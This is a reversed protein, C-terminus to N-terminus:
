AKKRCAPLHAFPAALSACGHLHQLEHQAGREDARQGTVHKRAPGIKTGADPRQKRQARGAFFRAGQDILRDTRDPFGVM